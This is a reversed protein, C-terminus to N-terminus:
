SPFSPPKAPERVGQIHDRRVVAKAEEIVAARAACSDYSVTRYNGYRLSVALTNKQLRTVFDDQRLDANSKFARTSSPNNFLSRTDTGAMGTKMDFHTLQLALAM